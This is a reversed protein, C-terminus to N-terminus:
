EENRAEIERRLLWTGWDFKILGSAIYMSFLFLPAGGKLIIFAGVFLTFLAFCKVPDATKKTLKKMNAYPISSIMLGGVALLIVATFVPPMNVRAIVFSSVFLGGAPCPLGQFPGPVHVVNFRALRLAVCLAFFCAAVAGFLNLSRVSVQYLLIAPAVGFSVLDALSDFELGFQSGGGLMRAVKGDFGDFLVAFFVLWAAVIYKENLTMMLSFLGCLLNGSTVMNPVIHRFKLPTRGGTKGM